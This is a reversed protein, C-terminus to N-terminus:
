NCIKKLAILTGEFYGKDLIKMLCEKHLVRDLSFNEYFLEYKSQVLLKSHGNKTGRYLKKLINKSHNRSLKLLATPM